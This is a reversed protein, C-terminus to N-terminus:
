TLEESSAANQGEDEAAMKEYAADSSAPNGGAEPVSPNATVVVVRPRSGATSPTFATKGGKRAQIEHFMASMQVMQEENVGALRSMLRSRRMRLKKLEKTNNKQLKKLEAQACVKDQILTTLGQGKTLRRVDASLAQVAQNEAAAGRAHGRACYAPRHM